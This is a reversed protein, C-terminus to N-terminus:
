THHQKYPYEKRPTRREPPKGPDAPRPGDATGFLTYRGEYTLLVDDVRGQRNKAVFVDAYGKLHSQPNDVEDRHVFIVVDADQEIAGCDRLDSLKPRATNAGNRNLQSLAMVVVDLEKALSKLGRSIEEVQQNRNQKPDSGSMLQLYDIVILKLGYKRKILRAKNRVQRLTLAARDDMYLAMDHLRATARGVADWQADNMDGKLIAELPVLAEGALLRDVLEGNQMEMSFVAVPHRGANNAVANFALATKGMSPRGAVIVFKGGSLGAPFLADLDRFGLRLGMARGEAREQLVPVHELLVQSVPKPEERVNAVALASLKGLVQDLVAAADQQAPSRVLGDLEDMAALVARRLARDAVTAAYRGVNAASPVAQAMDNLYRMVDPLHTLALGVTVVDCAKNAAIQRLLETVIIRHDERYFHAPELEGLQDIADNHRLLAGIVSQEAEIAYLISDTM